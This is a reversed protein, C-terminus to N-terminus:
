ILSPQYSPRSGVQYEPVPVTPRGFSYEYKEQGSRGPGTKQFGLSQFLRKSRKNRPHIVAWFYNWGDNTIMTDMAMALAQRGIGQSWLNTEGIYIGLEQSELNVMVVGVPRYGYSNTKVEIVFDIRKERSKWWKWHKDWTLNENRRSTPLHRWVEKIHAWALLLPLDSKRLQRLAVEPM